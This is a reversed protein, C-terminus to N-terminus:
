SATIYMTKKIIEKDYYTIFYYKGEQHPLIINVSNSDEIEYSNIFHHSSDFILIAGNKIKQDFLIFVQNVKCNVICTAM